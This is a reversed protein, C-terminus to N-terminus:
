AVWERLVHEWGLALANVGRGTVPDAVAIQESVLVPDWGVRRGIQRRVKLPPPVLRGVTSGAADAVAVEGVSYTAHAVTMGDVTAVLRQVGAGETLITAVEHGAGDRLRAVAAPRDPTVSVVGGGARHLVYSRENPTPGSVELAFTGLWTGTGDHVSWTPHLDVLGSRRHWLVLTGATLPDDGPVAAAHCAALVAAHDEASPEALPWAPAGPTLGDPDFSQAGDDAVAAAWTRGTWWRLRHRGTPDPYWGERAHSM